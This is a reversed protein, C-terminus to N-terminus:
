IEKIRYVKEGVQYKLYGADDDFNHSSETADTVSDKRLVEVEDNKDSEDEKKYNVERVVDTESDSDAETQVVLDEPLFRRHPFYKWFGIM